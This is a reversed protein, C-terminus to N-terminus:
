FQVGSFKGNNRRWITADNANIEGDLNFDTFSYRGFKGNDILWMSADNANIESFSAKSADSAFLCYTTGIQLQGSAPLGAPIYSQRQTFDYTIKNNVIPVIDHSVAGIHNRHEVAVFFSQSPNLVPCNGITTIKGDKHLLAATRYVTTSAEQPATRLSLLVWDVVSAAYISSSETGNYNWPAGKYPQGSTTPVALASLPVQGPLLGQQNLKTSMTTGTIAGELLVKIELCVNASTPANIQVSIQARDSECNNVTQNVYYVSTGVTGTSPTPAATTGTGGTASTYWKIGSGIATLAAPTQGKTYNVVATVLPKNPKAKITVDLKARDSECGNVTQSVFHSLTM